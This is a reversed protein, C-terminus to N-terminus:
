QECIPQSVPHSPYITSAWKKLDTRNMSSAKFIRGAYRNCFQDPKMRAASNSISNAMTTRLTNLSAEPNADGRKKFYGLLENEYAAFIDVNDRTFKNYKRYLNTGDTFRMNVCNLGIVMLESHIRLGQEAEAQSQTYCSKAAFAPGASIVLALVTSM